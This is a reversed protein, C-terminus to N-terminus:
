DRARMMTAVRAGDGAVAELREAINHWDQNNRNQSTKAKAEVTDIGIDFAVIGAVMATEYNATLHISWPQEFVREM